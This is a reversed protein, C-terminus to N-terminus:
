LLRRAVFAAITARLRSAGIHERSQASKKAVFCSFIASVAAGLAAARGSIAAVWVSEDRATNDAIQQLLQVVGGM